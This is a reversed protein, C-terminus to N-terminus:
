SMALCMAHCRFYFSYGFLVNWILLVNADRDDALWVRVSMMEIDRYIAPAILLVVAGLVHFYCVNQKAYM